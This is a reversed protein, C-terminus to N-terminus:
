PPECYPLCIPSLEYFYLNVAMFCTLFDSPLYNSLFILALLIVSTLHVLWPPWVDGPPHSVPPGLLYSPSTRTGFTILILPPSNQNIHHLLIRALIQNKLVHGLAPGLQFLAWLLRILTQNLLSGKDYQRTQTQYAVLWFLTDSLNVEECQLATGNEDTQELLVKAQSSM